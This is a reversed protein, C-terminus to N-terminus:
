KKLLLYTTTLLTVFSIATTITQLNNAGTGLTKQKLPKIYIFDNPQIYYQPQYMANVDTLDLTYTETGHPYQRYIMVEKRNGFITIDGSNAIVDMINARDNYIFNVGPRGIEGNITYRIGAMKVNVFLNANETVYEDLLLKEITERVEETTFGLVNINGIMPIRINGSADLNFGNFYLGQEGLQLMNAGAQQNMTNTQFLENIKPDITKINISLIDFPQLRYPKNFNESIKSSPEVSTKEEQFYILDKQTICSSLHVLIM